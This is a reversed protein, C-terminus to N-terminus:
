RVAVVFLRKFPFLTKGSPQRPYAKAMRARYEAEFAARAEGELAKLFPRLATGSTWRFVADDGDLIQLYRTEWIDLTAVHPELIAHYAEPTLVAGHAVRRHVRDKWRPDQELESLVTHSPEDYNNPVQFAFVGGTKLFSVLRPLLTAHDGLWHLAANSFIVDPTGTPTWTAIDGEIWTAGCSGLRAKTLMDASSDVGELRAKPWRRALLETSNGTGCGLDVVYNPENAPVHALLDAAPRTRQAEFSLYTAPDWSM